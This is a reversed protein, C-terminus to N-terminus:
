APTCVCEAGQEGFPDCSSFFGDDCLCPELTWSGGICRALDSGQCRPREADSCHTGETTCLCAAANESSESCGLSVHPPDLAACLTTCTTPVYAFTSPDCLEIVDGDGCVGQGPACEPVDESCLCRAGRGYTTSLCGAVAGRGECEDACSVVHWRRDTCRWLSEADICEDFVDGCGDGEHRVFDALEPPAQPCALLGAALLVLGALPARGAPTTPHTM